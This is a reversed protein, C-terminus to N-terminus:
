WGTLGSSAQGRATPSSLGEAAAFGTTQFSQVCSGVSAEGEHTRPKLAALHCRPKMGDRGCAGLAFCGIGLSPPITLNQNIWDNSPAELCDPPLSCLSPFHGPQVTRRTSRAAGGSFLWTFFRLAFAQLGEIGQGQMTDFEGLAGPHFIWVAHPKDQFDGHSLAKHAGGGRM